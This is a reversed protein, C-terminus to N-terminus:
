FQDTYKLHSRAPRGSCMIYVHYVRSGAELNQKTLDIKNNISIFLYIILKQVLWKSSKKIDSVRRKENERNQMRQKKEEKFKQVEYDAEEQQERFKRLDASRDFFPLSSVTIFTRSRPHM